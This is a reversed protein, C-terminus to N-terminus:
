HHWKWYGGYQTLAGAHRGNDWRKKVDLSSFFVCIKTYNKEFIAIISQVVCTISAVSPCRKM